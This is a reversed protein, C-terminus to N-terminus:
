HAFHRAGTLYMTVGAKNAAEIVEADRISGGPQVVARVGAQALVEFGDAFPFFADSAAVSGKARQEDGALSNAREVALKAADVRNVQGMGVGVTAGGQALLIANSKVARVARWAFELEALLEESAAEGAALTWNAPNDGEADVLDRRQVLVGGSIQRQELEDRQPQPAVLIRINKKQSLIDVAGDEYSPAIIVETFIESVQKAMDVSVERNSAIVGGFASVPDCAHATRHAEAISVDSVAIGCPNAHKIIAVCPREHDWAARWAADSDTYNNYSMEKGHLQTAQALGAPAAPDTYLAAAQHPNEGYRLINAREYSAGIWEAFPEDADAIQEGMWTAVAVDYSATHRFADVALATREARTFGGNGVAEIIESYRAPSVVVAVSPHNKAAARVMSPGGIDIQEVCADFDAGSAVTQTFPYLNVVVLQFPAVNLEDLQRLHDEKRTDALIGAHVMPHLTKVRGELCEPFGTLQEVPTVPVGLDAIKAATSGTSVIEVGADNLARALDELGTKDYVSILARKIQKRDDSM